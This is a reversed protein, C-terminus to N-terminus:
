IYSIVYFSLQCVPTYHTTDICTTNPTLLIQLNIKTYTILLLKSIVFIVNDHSTNKVDVDDCCLDM